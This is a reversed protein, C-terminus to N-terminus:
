ETPDENNYVEESFATESAEDTTEDNSSDGDNEPEHFDDISAGGEDVPTADGSADIELPEDVGEKFIITSLGEEFEELNIMGQRGILNPYIAAIRMIKEETLTNKGMKITVEGISIAVKGYSGVLIKQPTLEYKELCQTLTLVYNLISQDSLVMAEYLKPNEVQMGEVVVVNDLLTESQEEVFGDKDFYNYLGTAEDMFCGIVPKEYVTVALTRPGKFHIEMDDVFPMKKKDFWNYKAYIYWTYTSYEDTTLAAQITADDYIENGDVYIKETRFVTLAITVILAVVIVITGLVIAIRKRRQRKKREQLIM